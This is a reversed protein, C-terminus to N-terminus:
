KAKARAAANEGAIRGFTVIDALANGGLRNGGHVGGTVEGAAFLGAVATGDERLVQASSDIKVGGMTHHIAPTVKIAFYPGQALARPLDSRGFDGDKKEAAFSNYRNIAAKLVAPDSGILAALAEPTDAQLVFGAKIYGEIASLSKRITTDFVLYAIKENQALIKASVVDRTALEDVFREGAKNVLIAGNGRVAETVMENGEPAFTPHTQIQDMDVLGAGVAQAMKIGDGTAGPQNTTAFGKLSPVYSAAMENNAGFGGTALVVAKAKVKYEKGGISVVVGIVTGTKDTTLSTVEADNFIQLGASSKAKTGLTKVIEPGVKAGGAPRHARDVSAGALRGVDSLDGGLETIWAVSSAAKEALTQVLQPNNKNYGGKMTDKFFLEPSDKINKAAQQPTGAANMGGTARITNGGLVGMKEFLVVKVGQAVAANAASLGAGGGGIVIVDYSKAPAVKMVAAAPLAKAPSFGAKSLADKVAAIFGDSAETAGSVTDVDASNAQLMRQVLAEVASDGLYATENMSLVKIGLIAKENVTVAVKIDGGHGKGTGEYTGPQFRKTTSVCSVALFSAIILIVASIKRTRM